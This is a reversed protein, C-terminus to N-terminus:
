LESKCVLIESKGGSLNLAVLKSYYTVKFLLGLRYIRCGCIREANKGSKFKYRLVTSCPRLVSLKVKCEVSLKVVIDICMEMNELCKSLLFLILLFVSQIGIVVTCVDVAVVTSMEHIRRVAKGILKNEHLFALVAPASFVTEPREVAVAVGQGTDLLKGAMNFTLGSLIPIIETSLTVAGILQCSQKFILALVIVGTESLKNRSPLRNFRGVALRIEIIKIRNIIGHIGPHLCYLSKGVGEIILANHDSACEACVFSSCFIKNGALRHIASKNGKFLACIPEIDIAIDSVSVVMGNGCIDLINCPIMEILFGSKHGSQAVSKNVIM